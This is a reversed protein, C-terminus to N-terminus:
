YTASSISVVKEKKAKNDSGVCYKCSFMNNPDISKKIEELRKLLKTGYMCEQLSIGTHSLYEILHIHNISCYTHSRVCNSVLRPAHSILIFECQEDRENPSWSMPCAKTWDSKLPGRAYPSRHNTGIFAPFNDPDLSQM